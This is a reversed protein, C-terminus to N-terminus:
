QTGISYDKLKIIHKIYAKTTHHMKFVIQENTRLNLRSQFFIKDMPWM